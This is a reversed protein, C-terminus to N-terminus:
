GKDPNLKGSQMTLIKWIQESKLIRFPRKESNKWKLSEFEYISIYFLFLFFM